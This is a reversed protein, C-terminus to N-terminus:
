WQHRLSQLSQVYEWYTSACFLRLPPPCPPHALYSWRHNAQSLAWDQHRGCVCTTHRAGRTKTPGLVFVRRSCTNNRWARMYVHLDHVYLESNITVGGSIISLLLSRFLRLPPALSTSLLLSPSVSDTSVCLASNPDRFLEHYSWQLVREYSRVSLHLMFRLRFFFVYVCFSPVRENERSPRIKEHSLAVGCKSTIGIHAYCGYPYANNLLIIVM